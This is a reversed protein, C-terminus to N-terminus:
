KHLVKEIDRSPIQTMALPLQTPSAQMPVVAASRQIMIDAKIAGCDTM